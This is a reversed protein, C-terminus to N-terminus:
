IKYLALMDEEAFHLTGPIILSHMPKGFDFESLQKMTGYKIIQDSSGVRAVGICMTDGLCIDNNKESEIEWLQKIAQNITMFRPPLPKANTTDDNKLMDQKAQEAVKIDLLILTHLGRKKNELIVDYATKPKWDKEFFVLSTTKGFKYLQLGTVGIATLISANYIVVVEINKEKARLFLDSHTTASFVDGAVLLAVNKTQAQDLLVDAKQEVFTRDAIHIEKNFFTQLQEISEQMIATYHELYVADARQIAQLGRLSIDTHDCLGLGILTLVM